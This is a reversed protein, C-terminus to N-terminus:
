IERERERERERETYIHICIYIYIYVYTYIYIYIYLSLSINIIYICINIVCCVYHIIRLKQVSRLALTARASAFLFCFLFLTFSPAHIRAYTCMCKLLLINITQSSVASGLDSQRQRAEPQGREGVPRRREQRGRPQRGKTSGKHVRAAGAANESTHCSIVIIHYSIAHYPIMRCPQSM